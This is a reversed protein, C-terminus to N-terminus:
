QSKKRVILRFNDKGIVEVLEGKAIIGDQSFVEYPKGDINIQGTPTLQATVEGTKYLLIDDKEQTSKGKVVTKLFFRQGFETKSLYKLELILMVATLVLVVVFVWIAGASGYEEYGVVCAAIMSTAGLVGLVGGPVIVEFGILVLGLVVFGIILGM